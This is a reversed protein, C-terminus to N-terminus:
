ELNRKSGSRDQIKKRGLPHNRLLVLDGVKLDDAKVSGDHRVKREAAAQKLAKMAIDHATALREQHTHVWDTQSQFKENQSIGLLFDVPLKPKQGFLLEFPSFGTSAHPTCNYVYIVESLNETWRRKKEPPLTRLLNHLTRNFRECQANGQSHYPTTRSKSIGYLTCLERIVEGEFSRGRDSHIRAPIGFKQFWEKVLVKAVTTAKQDRTPVAVTFKTFVDTLVLVNERGDSSKELLTFDM